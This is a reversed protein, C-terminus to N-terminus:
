GNMRVLMRAPFQSPLFLSLVMKLCVSSPSTAPNLLLLRALNEQLLFPRPLGCEYPPIAPIGMVGPDDPSSGIVVFKVEEKDNNITTFERFKKVETRLEIM